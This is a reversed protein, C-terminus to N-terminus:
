PCSLGQNSVRDFAGEAVRLLLVGGGKGMAVAAGKADVGKPSAVLPDGVARLESDVAVLRLERSGPQGQLWGVLWRGGPLLAITALEVPGAPGGQPPTWAKPRALAKGFSGRSAMLTASETKAARSDFMLLAQGGHCALTLTGVASSMDPVKELNGSPKGDAGIWGAWVADKTRLAVIAGDAGCAAGELELVPDETPLVWVVNTATKEGTSAVLARKFIGIRSYPTTALSRHQKQTEQPDDEDAAFAIADGNRYPVVRLVPRTLDKAFAAKSAGTDIDVTFGVAKNTGTALGVGVRSDSPDSWVGIPVPGLKGVVLSHAVGVLTCAPRGSASPPEQGGATTPAGPTASKAFTASPAGSAGSRAASASSAPTPKATEGKGCGLSVMATAALSAVLLACAGRPRAHVPSSTRPLAVGQCPATAMPRPEPATM